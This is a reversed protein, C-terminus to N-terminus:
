LLQFSQANIKQTGFCIARLITMFTIMDQLRCKDVKVFMSKLSNILCWFNCCFAFFQM